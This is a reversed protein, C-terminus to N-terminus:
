LPFERFHSKLAFVLVPVLRGSCISQAAFKFLSCIGGEIVAYGFCSNFYEIGRCPLVIHTVATQSALSVLPHHGSQAVSTASAM